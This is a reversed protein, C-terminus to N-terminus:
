DKLLEKRLRSFSVHTIGLYSAIIQHSILNEINPYAKRLTLLREKAQNSRYIIDNLLQNSLEQEVVHQGLQRFGPYTYRLEDFIKVPITGIKVPTLTQLSFINKLKVTRAFHPTIIVPGKYIGTTVENGSSSINFRHLIGELLFYEKDDKKGEEFLLYHKPYDHIICHQAFLDQESKDKLGYQEILSIVPQQNM